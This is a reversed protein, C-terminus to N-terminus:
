RGVQAEKLQLMLRHIQEQHIKHEEEMREESRETREEVQNIKTILIQSRRQKEHELELNSLRNLYYTPLYAWADPISMVPDLTSVQNDM